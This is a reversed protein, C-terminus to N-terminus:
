VGEEIAARWADKLGALVEDFTHNDNWWTPVYGLFSQLFAFAEQSIADQYSLGLGDIPVLRIALCEESQIRPSHPVWTIAPDQLHHIRAELEEAITMREGQPPMKM